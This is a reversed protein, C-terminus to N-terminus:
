MVVFVPSEEKHPVLKFGAPLPDPEEAPAQMVMQAADVVACEVREFVESVTMGYEARERVLKLAHKTRARAIDIHKRERDIGSARFGGEIAGSVTTGSGVFPDLVRGGPPTVLKVLYAMLKLPKVTPHSNGRPKQGSTGAYPNAKATGNKHKMVLGASGVKRGTLKDPTVQELAECGASKEKATPKACYFVPFFRSAGGADEYEAGTKTMGWGKGPQKSSRPKGKTSKSLGSQADIVRVPCADHCPEEETHDHSLILNAPWRGGNVRSAAINIAGTGYKLVNKVITGELPKRAMVIPEHSPKLATGFGKWKKAAETQTPPMILQRNLKNWQDKNPGVAMGLSPPKEGIPKVGAAKEMAKSVDHSKPFGTGYVWHLSDRIEFGASEIARSVHHYTRTGGFSLLYGGPKLVRMVERWFETSFAPSTGDWDKGMFGRDAVM